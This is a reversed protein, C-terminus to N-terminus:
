ARKVRMNPKGRVQTGQIRMRSKQQYNEMLSDIKGEGLIPLLFRGGPQKTIYGKIKKKLKKPDEEDDMHSGSLQSEYYEKMIQRLIKNM